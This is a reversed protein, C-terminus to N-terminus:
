HKKINYEFYDQIGAVSYLEDPLEFEDNRTSASLKFNSNNYGKKQYKKM